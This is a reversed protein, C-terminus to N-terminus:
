WGSNGKLEVFRVDDYKSTFIKENEDKEILTLTQFSSGGIPALLKGNINLQEILEDSVKLSGASIIIRDFPSFEKWGHNGDAIRFFINEFDLDSLNKQAFLSLKEILEITYVTKSVCALLATQYGCGTGIELVKSNEDPNLIKIMKIILSPQSTTQGYGIELPSDWSYYKKIEEPLFNKRDVNIFRNELDNM